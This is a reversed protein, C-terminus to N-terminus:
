SRLFSTGWITPHIYAWMNTIHSDSGDTDGTSYVWAIVFLPLAFFFDHIHLNNIQGLAFCTKTQPYYYLSKYKTYSLQSNQIEKM